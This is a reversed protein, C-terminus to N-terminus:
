MLREMMFLGAISRFLILRQARGRRMHGVVKMRHMELLFLVLASFVARKPLIVALAMGILFFVNRFPVRRRQPCVICFDKGNERERLMWAAEYVELRVLIDYIM